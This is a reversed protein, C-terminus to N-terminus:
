SRKKLLEAYLKGYESLTTKLSFRKLVSKLAGAALASRSKPNDMLRLIKAALDGPKEPDFTLGTKGNEVIERMAPIDSVVVAVRRLIADLVSTGLGERFSPFVFLDFGALLDLADQRFGTFRVIGAVGLGAATKELKKRLSGEGVIVVEFDKRRLALEAAARILCLHNKLPSLKGVSGIIFKGNKGRRPKKLPGPTEVTSPILRIKEPDLGAQLLQNKVTESIAVVRDCSSLKALSLRSIPRESVVRRTYLLPVKMFGRLVRGLNLSSSSHCHILGVSKLRPLFRFVDLLGRYGLVEIGAAALRRSLESGSRVLALPRLDPLKLNAALLLVQRQGGGWGKEIDIHLVEPRSTM